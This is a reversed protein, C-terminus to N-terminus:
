AILALLDRQDDNALLHLGIGALGHLLGPAEVGQARVDGLGWVFRDGRDAHALIRDTMADAAAAWAPEGMGRGVAKLIAARGLVGCCLHPLGGVPFARTTEAGARLDDRWRSADAHSPAVELARLRALAIGPAGNCWSTYCSGPPAGARFDPWNRAAEDFVSAEYAFARAGADVFRDDGLATGAEILALGM